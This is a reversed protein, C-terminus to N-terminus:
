HESCAKGAHDQEDTILLFTLLFTLLSGILSVDSYSPAAPTAATAAVHSACHPLLFAADANILSPVQLRLSSTRGRSM